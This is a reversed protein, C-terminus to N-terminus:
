ISHTEQLKKRFDDDIEEGEPLGTKERFERIAQRFEDSMQGDITGNLFGLNRLRAQVGSLETIPDLEGLDLDCSALEGSQGIEVRGRRANPPVPVRLWGTGDLKGLTHKGDITLQFPAGAYPQGDLDVFRINLKEPVGVRVFRHTKGTARSVLKPEIAPIFIEDGPYLINPHSRLKRLQNNRPHFWITKWFLGNEFALSTTSEGQQVSHLTGESNM